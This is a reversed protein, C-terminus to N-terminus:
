AQKEDPAEVVVSENVGVSRERARQQVVGRHASWWAQAHVESWGGADRCALLCQKLVDASQPRHNPDKALCSIIVRDLDAPVATGLRMSMPVPPTSVQDLLLAADSAGAFLPQGTILYYGVAGLAYIDTRADVAAPEVIAEPAMFGPTGV